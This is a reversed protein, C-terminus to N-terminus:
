NSSNTEHRLRATELFYFNGAPFPVIHVHTLRRNHVLVTDLYWLNFTPLQRAVIKQIQAYDKKQQAHSTSTSANQILRNVEPNNYFGRNAGRPPMMSAALTYRFIDPHENGGIWRSIAMQFSGHTLDAFFTAFEFSRLDVIIGVKALQAQMAMAILRSTENTSTQLGIHFRIGNRGRPFGAEDLLRDAKAPDYHYVPTPTWAWHEPPLLSSALRAQGRFLTKIMLPRDIAYAIAQRVKEHRLTPNHLDFIMYYIDTGLGSDVVLNKDQKLEHVMDAPLANLEVDASGKELELARTTADPVVQFRIREIHPKRGWYYPNRKLIVNRDYQQSVFEFPGSGIPHLDFNKGSGYPVIGVAGDSLNEIFANDPHKLHFVVTLPNPTDISQISQYAGTKVTILSGNLMSEFTWKVDRSTLPKGNSFRVGPHLHFIYTVPNPEQWSTALGPKFGLHSNHTVLSDFILMDIHASQADVGIRPDLNTPSSGILMVVTNPDRPHSSCGTLSLAVIAFMGLLIGTLLRRRRAFSVKLWSDPQKKLREKTKPGRDM